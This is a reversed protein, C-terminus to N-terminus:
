PFKKSIIFFIANVVQEYLKKYNESDNFIDDWVLNHGTTNRLKATTNFATNTDSNIGINNLIEWLSQASTDISVRFDQKFANVSNLDGITKVPNGDDKNPYLQKLLSEFILGGKFLHTLIPEISGGEKSRLNLIMYRDQFELAFSYFATIISRTDKNEAMKMVFKEAFSSIDLSILNSINNFRQFEKDITTRLQLTIEKASQNGQEKLTLFQGAPDKIWDEIPRDPTKRRDESIAADMYFVAKEFDKLGFATWALFYFPTGKHIELYKDFNDEKLIQLLLEYDNFREYPRDLFNIMNGPGFTEFFWDGIEPGSIILRKYVERAYKLLGDTIFYFRKM